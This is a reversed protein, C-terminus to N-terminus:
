LYKQMSDFTDPRPFYVIPVYNILRQVFGLAQTIQFSRFHKNKELELVM